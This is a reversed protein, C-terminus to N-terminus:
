RKDRRQLRVDRRQWKEGIHLQVLEGGLASRPPTVETPGTEKKEEVDLRLACSKM